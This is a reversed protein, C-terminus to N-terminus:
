MRELKELFEARTMGLERIIERVLGVGIDKLHIPVVVLKGDKNQLILHSGKQRAPVYGLEELLALIKRYPIPKLKM